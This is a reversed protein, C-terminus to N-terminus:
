SSFAEHEANLGQNRVESGFIIFIKYFDADLFILKIYFDADFVTKLSFISENLSYLSWFRFRWIPDKIGFIINMLQM